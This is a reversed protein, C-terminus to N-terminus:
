RSEHMKSAHRHIERIQEQSSRGRSSVEQVRTMRGKALECEHSLKGGIIGARIFPNSDFDTEPFTRTSATKLPFGRLVM